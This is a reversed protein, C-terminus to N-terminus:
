RRAHYGSGHRCHGRRCRPRIRSRTTLWAALLYDRISFAVDIVALGPRNVHTENIPDM